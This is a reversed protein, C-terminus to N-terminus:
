HASGAVEEMHIRLRALARYQAMRVAGPRKGIVATPEYGNAILRADTEALSPDTIKAGGEPM